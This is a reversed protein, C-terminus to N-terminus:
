EEKITCDTVKPLEVASLTIINQGSEIYEKINANKAWQEKAKIVAEDVWRELTAASIFLKVVAPLREYVWKIVTSQKLAGTGAGFQKEAETVLAYLMKFVLTKKGRAILFIILVFFAVILIISDWNALLFNIINM